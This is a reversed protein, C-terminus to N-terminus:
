DPGPARAGFGSGRTGAMAENEARAVDLRYADVVRRPDGQARTVGADLWLAEDCFRTVLDLSHTVLLVTRGRRRLETVLRSGILGTGGIVVIKM